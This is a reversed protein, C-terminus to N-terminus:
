IMGVAWLFLFNVYLAGLALVLAKELALNKIRRLNFVQIQLSWVQLVTIIVLAIASPIKTVGILHFLLYWIGLFLTQPLFSIVTIGWVGRWGQTRAFLYHSGGEFVLLLFLCSTVVSLLSVSFSFGEFLILYGAISTNMSSSLWGLVSIILLSGLFSHIPANTLTVVWKQMSIIKILRNKQTELDMQSPFTSIYDTGTDLLKAAQMGLTNFCYRKEEDQVVWANLNNLHHYLSGPTIQLEAILDTYTIYKRESILRLIRRRIPNGLSEYFDQESDDFTSM